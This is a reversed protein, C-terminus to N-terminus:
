PLILPPWFCPICIIHNQKRSIRWQITHSTLDHIQVRHHLYIESFRFKFPLFGSSALDPWKSLIAWIKDNPGFNQKRIQMGAILLQFHLIQSTKGFPKLPDSSKPCSGLNKLVKIPPTRSDCFYENVWLICSIFIASHINIVINSSMSTNFNLFRSCAGLFNTTYLM